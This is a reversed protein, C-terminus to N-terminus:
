HQPASRCKICGLVGIGQLCEPHSGKCTTVPLQALSVWFLGKAAPDQTDRLLSALFAETAVALAETSFLAAQGTCLGIIAEQLGTAYVILQQNCTHTM